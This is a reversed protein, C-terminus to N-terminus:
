WSSSSSLFCIRFNKLALYDKSFYSIVDVKSFFNLMVIIFFILFKSKYNHEMLHLIQVKQHGDIGSCIHDSITQEVSTLSTKDPKEM